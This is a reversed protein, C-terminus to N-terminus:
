EIFRHIEKGPETSSQQNKSDVPEHIKFYLNNTNYDSSIEKKFIMEFPIYNNNLYIFM